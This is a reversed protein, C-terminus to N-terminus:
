STQRNTLIADFVTVLEIIMILCNSHSIPPCIISFAQKKCLQILAMSIKVKGAKKGVKKEVNKGEKKGSM